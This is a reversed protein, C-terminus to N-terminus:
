GRDNHDVTRDLARPDKGFRRERVIVPLTKSDQCHWGQEPESDSRDSPTQRKVLIVGQASERAEASADHKVCVCCVLEVSQGVVQAGHLAQADGVRRVRVM